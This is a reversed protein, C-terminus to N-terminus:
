KRRKIGLRKRQRRTLHKISVCVSMTDCPTRIAVKKIVNTPKQNISIKLSDSHKIKKINLDIDNQVLSTEKKIAEQITPTLLQTAWKYGGVFGLLCGILLGIIINKWNM